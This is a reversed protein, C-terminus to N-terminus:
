QRSRDARPLLTPTLRAASNGICYPCPVLGQRVAEMRTFASTDKHAYPCATAAHYLNSGRSVLVQSPPEGAPVPDAHQNILHRASPGAFAGGAVILLLVVIGTYFGLSIAIRGRCSRSDLPSFSPQNLVRQPHSRSRQQERNMTRRAQGSSRM